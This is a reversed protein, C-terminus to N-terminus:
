SLTMNGIMYYYCFYIRHGEAGGDEYPHPSRLAADTKQDEEDWYVYEMLVTTDKVLQCGDQHMRLLFFPENTPLVIENSPHTDNRCCYDVRTNHDYQGDPLTGRESNHNNDDEDDWYISGAGFGVPCGGSKVICYSGNPWQTGSDGTTSTKVRHEISIGNSGFYGALHLPSSFSNNNYYDESDQYRRGEQWTFQSGTDPCGSLPKPLAYTGDPWDPQGAYLCLLIIQMGM